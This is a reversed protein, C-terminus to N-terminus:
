RSLYLRQNAYDLEVRFRKLVNGGLAGIIPSTMMRSMRHEFVGEPQSTVGMAEIAQGDWRASPVTVTELTRGGLTSADGAAGEQRPWDPHAGGWRKLIAESVITFSAGTDLLFGYTQGDVRVETRPFGLPDSVPMPSPEGKPHLVGPRALTFTGGPYDFVVHYHRLVHGPLLGDAHGPAAEPVLNEAGVMVFVRDEDLQLPLDGLSAEPAERVRALKRGQSGAPKGWELGLDSALKESLLFGGGGTDIWFRATRESGDAARLTLDVYARNGVVHM